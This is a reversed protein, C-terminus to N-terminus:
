LGDLAGPARFFDTSPAMLLLRRVRPEREVEVADGTITMARAGALMLLVTAGISHGVGVASLDARAITELVLRVGRARTELRDVAPAPSALRAVSPAAVVCGSAALIQLLGLHRRPDGGGGVSFLVVAKATAPELVIVEFPEGSDELMRTSQ